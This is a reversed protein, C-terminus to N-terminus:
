NFKQANGLIIRKPANQAIAYKVKKGLIFFFLFGADRNVSHSILNACAEGFGGISAPSTLGQVMTAKAPM